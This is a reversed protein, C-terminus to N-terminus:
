SRRPPQYRPEAKQRRKEGAEGAAFIFTGAGVWGLRLYEGHRGVRLKLARGVGGSLYVIVLPSFSPSPWVDISPSLPVLLLRRISPGSTFVVVSVIEKSLSLVTAM